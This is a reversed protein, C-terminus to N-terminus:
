RRRRRDPSLAPSTSPHARSHDGGAEDTLGIAIPVRFSRVLDEIAAEGATFDVGHGVVREAVLEALRVSRRRSELEGDCVQGFCSRTRGEQRSLALKEVELAIERIAKELGESRAILEGIAVPTATTSLLPQRGKHSKILEDVREYLADELVEMCHRGQDVGIM